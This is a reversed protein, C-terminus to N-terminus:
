KKITITVRKKGEEKTILIDMINGGGFVAVTNYICLEGGGLDNM